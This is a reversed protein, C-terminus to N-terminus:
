ANHRGINKGNNATYYVWTYLLVEMVWYYEEGLMSDMFYFMVDRLREIVIREITPLRSVIMRM